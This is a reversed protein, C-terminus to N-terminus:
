NFCSTESFPTKFYDKSSFNLLEKTFNAIALFVCLDCPSLIFIKIREKLFINRM